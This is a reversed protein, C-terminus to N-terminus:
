LEEFKHSTGWPTAQKMQRQMQLQQKNTEQAANRAKLEAHDKEKKSNDITSTTSTEV